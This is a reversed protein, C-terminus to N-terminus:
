LFTALLLLICRRCGRFRLLLNPMCLYSCCMYFGFFGVRLYTGVYLAHPSPRNATSSVKIKHPNAPNKSSYTGTNKNAFFTYLALHNYFPAFFYLLLLQVGSYYRHFITTRSYNCTIFVFLQCQEDFTSFYIYFLINAFCTFIQSAFSYSRYFPLWNCNIFM